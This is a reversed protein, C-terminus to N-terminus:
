SRGHRVVHEIDGRTLGLDHLMYEGMGSLEAMSRRIRVEKVLSGLAGALGLAVARGVDTGFGVVLDVLLPRKTSGNAYLTSM